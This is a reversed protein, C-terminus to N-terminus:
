ISYRSEIRSPVWISKADGVSASTRAVRRVFSLVTTRFEGPWRQCSAQGEQLRWSISSKVAASWTDFSCALFKFAAWALYRFIVSPSNSDTLRTASAVVARLCDRILNVVVFTTELWIRVSFYALIATRDWGKRQEAGGVRFEKLLPSPSINQPCQLVLSTWPASFFSRDLPFQIGGFVGQSHSEFHSPVIVEVVMPVCSSDGGLGLEILGVRQSGDRGVEGEDVFTRCCMREWSAKWVWLISGM